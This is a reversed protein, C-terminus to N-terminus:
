SGTTESPSTISTVTRTFQVLASAISNLCINQKPARSEGIRRLLQAIDTYGRRVYM